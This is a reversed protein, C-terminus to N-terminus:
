NNSTDESQVVPQPLVIPRVCHLYADDPGRAFEPVIHHLM